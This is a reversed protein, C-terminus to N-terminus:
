HPLEQLQLLGQKNNCVLGFFDTSGNRINGMMTGGNHLSLPRVFSDFAMHYIGYYGTGFAFMDNRGNMCDIIFGKYVCYFGVLKLPMEVSFWFVSM